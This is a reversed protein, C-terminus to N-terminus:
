RKKKKKSAQGKHVPTRNAERKKEAKEERKNRGLVRFVMFVIYVLAAAICVYVMQRGDDVHGLYKAFLYVGIMLIWFYLFKVVIGGNNM